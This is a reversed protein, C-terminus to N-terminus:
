FLEVIVVSKENAILAQSSGDGKMAISRPNQLISGINISRLTKGSPNFVLIVNKVEDCVYINNSSDSSIAGPPSGDCTCYKRRDLQGLKSFIFVCNMECDSIVFKGNLLVHGYKPKRLLPGKKFDWLQIQKVEQNELVCIFDKNIMWCLESSPAHSSFMTFVGSYSKLIVFSSSLVHLNNQTTKCVMGEKFSSVEICNPLVISKVESEKNSILTLIQKRQDVIAIKDRDLWAVSSYNSNCDNENEKLQVTHILHPWTKNLHEKKDNSKTYTKNANEQSKGNDKVLQFICKEKSFHFVPLDISEIKCNELINQAQLISLRNKMETTMSLIEIDSGCKFINNCFLYTKDLMKKNAEISEMKKRLDIEKSKVFEDFDIEVLLKSNVIENFIKNFKKELAEKFNKKGTDVKNLESVIIKMAINVDTLKTRLSNMLSDLNAEMHKRADSPALCSHNQHGLVICDRCVPVDCTECFFRLDEGEHKVCPIQQRARIEDNYKGASLEALPVVQHHFTLTTSKHRHDACQPCLFDECTLCKATAEFNEGKLSCFTCKKSTITTSSVFEVLNKLCFNTKMQNVGEEPLHFTERCEPCPHGAKCDNVQTFSNICETCFSHLCPLTKPDKYVELCISCTLFDKEISSSMSAM